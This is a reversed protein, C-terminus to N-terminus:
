TVLFEPGSVVFVHRGEEWARGITTALSRLERQETPAEYCDPLKGSGPMCALSSLGCMKGYWCCLRQNQPIRNVHIRPTYTLQDRLPKVRGHLAHSLAEGTVTLIQDGWSTGRLLALVGWPEQPLPVAYLVRIDTFREPDSFTAYRLGDVM